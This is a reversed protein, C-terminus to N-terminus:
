ECFGGSDGGQQVEQAPHGNAVGGPELSISDKLWPNKFLCELPDQISVVYGWHFPFQNKGLFQVENLCYHAPVEQGWGTHDEGWGSAVRALVSSGVVM